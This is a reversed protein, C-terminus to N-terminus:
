ARANVSAPYRNTGHIPIVLMRYRCIDERLAVWLFAQLDPLLGFTWIDLRQM